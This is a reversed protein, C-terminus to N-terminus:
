SESARRGSILRAREVAIRLLEDKGVVQSVLGCSHAAEVDMRMGTVFM